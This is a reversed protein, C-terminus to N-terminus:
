CVIRQQFQHEVLAKFCVFTEHVHSKRKLPYWTYQTYHDVFIVYYKFDDVYPIPSTWVDSFIIELPHTSVISSSSFPIKHSKNCHCANCFTTPSLPSSLPLLFKSVITKLIAFSLHGLRSHWASSFTKVSSFAILPTSFIPSPKLWEYIGNKPQGKLHIAGTRLDKVYFVYPLFEICVHNHNSFKYISILNKKMSPVCLVNHPQFTKSPTSLTTSGSHTIQLGSSDGIM